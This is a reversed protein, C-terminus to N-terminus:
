AEIRDCFDQAAMPCDNLKKRQSHVPMKHQRGAYQQILPLYIYCTIPLFKLIYKLMYIANSEMMNCSLKTLINKTGEKHVHM